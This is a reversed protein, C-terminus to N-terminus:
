AKKRLTRTGVVALGTALLLMTAPEPTPAASQSEFRFTLEDVKFGSAFDRPTGVITLEGSGVVQSGFIRDEAPTLISLFGSMEFPTRATFGGFPNTEVILVPTASFMLDATATLSPYTVGNVQHFGPDDGRSTFDGSVHTSFDVISGPGFGSLVPDAVHGLADFAVFLHDNFLILGSGSAPNFSFEGQQITIADAHAASASMLLATAFLGVISTKM